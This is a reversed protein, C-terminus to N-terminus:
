FPPTESGFNGIFSIYVRTIANTTAPIDIFIHNIIGNGKYFLKNFIDMLYKLVDVLRFNGQCDM